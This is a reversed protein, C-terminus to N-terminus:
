MAGPLTNLSKEFSLYELEVGAGRSTYLEVVITIGEKASIIYPVREQVEYIDVQGSRSALLDDRKTPKKM